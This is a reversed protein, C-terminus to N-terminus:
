LMIGKQIFYPLEECGSLTRKDRIVVNKDTIVCNLKTNEGVITDQMLICNEVVAGKAVKVGRFLISNVVTGEIVCGDSVLANSVKANTGYESPASDKVKTYIDRAGFLEKRVDSNLLAMNHKYYSAMCTLTACFGQYCYNYIRISDHRKSLIDRSFSTYGCTIANSVLNILYQRDLVMINVYVDAEEEDTPNIKLNTVRGDADSDITMYYHTKEVPGHHSVMTIEARKEEHYRIIEQIDFHAITDSDSLVVYDENRRNLFGLVGKLAELRTTAIADNEDIYPPLLMIGGDKRALDWEKGSGIHDLLSQYNSKTVVGITTIGANVMNSLPFDIMRYRGGFPVSALTRHGSLEPLNEENMSSFIVGVATM